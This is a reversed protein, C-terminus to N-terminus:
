ALTILHTDGGCGQVNGKAEDIIYLAAPVAASFSSKPYVLRNMLYTALVDGCGIAHSMVHRVLLPGSVKVLEIQDSAWLGILLRADPMYGAHYCGTMDKYFRALEKQCCWDHRKCHPM